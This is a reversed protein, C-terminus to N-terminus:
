QLGAQLLDLIEIERPWNFIVSYGKLIPGSRWMSRRSAPDVLIGQGSSVRAAFGLLILSTYKITTLTTSSM